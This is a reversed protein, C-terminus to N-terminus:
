MLKWKNELWSKLKLSKTKPQSVKWFKGLTSLRTYTLSPCKGHVYTVDCKYVGEDEISVSKIKLHAVGTATMNAADLQVRAGGGFAFEGLATQYSESYLYVRQWEGTVNKSWTLFYINGCGAFDVDCPISAPEGLFQASIHVRGRVTVGSGLENGGSGTATNSNTAAFIGDTFIILIVIIFSLSTKLM